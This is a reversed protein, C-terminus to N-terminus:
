AGASIFRLFFRRHLAEKEAEPGSFVLETRPLSAPGIRREPLATMRIECDGCRFLGEGEQRIDDQTRFYATIRETSVSWTERIQM